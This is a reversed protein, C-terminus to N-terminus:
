SKPYKEIERLRARCAADAAYAQISSLRLLRTGAMPLTYPPLKGPLSLFLGAATPKSAARAAGACLRVVRLQLAAWM